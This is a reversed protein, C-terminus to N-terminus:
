SNLVPLKIHPIIGLQTHFRYLGGGTVQIAYPQLMSVQTVVPKLVLLQKISFSACMNFTFVTENCIQHTIAM